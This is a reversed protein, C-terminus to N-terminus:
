FRIGVLRRLAPAARVIAGENRDPAGVLTEVGETTGALDGTLFRRGTWRRGDRCAAYLVTAEFAKPHEILSRNEARIRRALDDVDENKLGVMEQSLGAFVVVNNRKDAEVAASVVVQMAFEEPDVDGTPLIAYVCVRTKEEDFLGLPGVAGLPAEVVHLHHIEAGPESSSLLNDLHRMITDESLM